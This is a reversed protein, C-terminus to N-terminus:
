ILKKKQLHKEVKSYMRVACLDCRGIKENTKFIFNYIEQLEAAQAKNLRSRTKRVTNRYFEVARREYEETKSMGAYKDTNPAFMRAYEMDAEIMRKREAESYERERAKADEREALLNAAFMPNTSDFLDDAPYIYDVVPLSEGFHPDPEPFPAKSLSPNEVPVREDLIVNAGTSSLAEAAMEADQHNRDIIITARSVDIDSEATVLLGDYFIGMVATDNLMDEISKIDRTPPEQTQNKKKEIEALEAKTKRRGSQRKKKPGEVKQKAM